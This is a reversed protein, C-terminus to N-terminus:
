GKRAVTMGIGKKDLKDRGAQEIFKDIGMM